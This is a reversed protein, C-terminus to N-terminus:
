KIYRLEKNNSYIILFFIILPMFLYHSGWNSSSILFVVFISFLSKNIKFVKIFCYGIFIFYFISLFGYLIIWAYFLNDITTGLYNGKYFFNRVEAPLHNKIFEDINGLGIGIFNDEFVFQILYLPTIIRYFGSSGQDGIELMRKTLYFDENQIIVPSLIILIFILILFYINKKEFFKTFIGIMFCLIGSVSLSSVLGIILILKIMKEKRIQVLDILFYAIVNFLAFISPEYYLSNSRWIIGKYIYKISEHATFTFNDFPYKLFLLDMNLFRIFITQIIAYISLIVMAIIYSKFLNPISKKNYFYYNIFLLLFVFYFELQLYSEFFNGLDVSNFFGITNILTFFVFIFLFKSNLKEKIMIIRYIFILIFILIIIETLTINRTRIKFVALNMFIIQIFFVINIFKLFIKKTM